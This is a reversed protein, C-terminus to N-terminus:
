SEVSVAYGIFNDKGKEWRNEHEANSFPATTKSLKKHIFCQKLVTKSQVTTIHAYHLQLQMNQLRAPRIINSHLIM